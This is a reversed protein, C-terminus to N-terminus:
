HRLAEAVRKTLRPRPALRAMPGRCGPTMRCPVKPGPSAMRLEGCGRCEMWEHGSRQGELAWLVVTAIEDKPEYESAMAAALTRSATREATAYLLGMVGLLAALDAV